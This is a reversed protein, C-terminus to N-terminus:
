DWRETFFKIFHKIFFVLLIIPVLFFIVMLGLYDETDWPGSLDDFGDMTKYFTFFFAIVYLIGLPIIELTTM